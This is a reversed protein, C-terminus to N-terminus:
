SLRIKWSFSKEKEGLRARQGGSLQLGRDGVLTDDGNLFNLLDQSLGCANIVDNYVDDDFECGMLINEKVTGDVIFPEQEAYSLKVFRRSIEGKTPSLEGALCQLLASKGSAVKGIICYLKGTSFELSIDSLAIPSADNENEDLKSNSAGSSQISNWRCTVGSMKLIKEESSDIHNVGTNVNVPDPVSEMHSQENLSFFRQIRGSAIFSESLSMVSNPVHKTLIFQVINLLTMTSFAKKPTLEGGMADYISFIFVSISISASFFIAENLAKYRGAKQITAIERARIKQIRDRFNYEWGNYKMIRVGSIAQSVFNVREDTIAAVQSRYLAFKRGLAIQLPILCALLVYGIAFVPGIILIGIVLIVICFFPGLFLFPSTVSAYVFKEVDTSALNMIYGNSIGDAGHLAGVPLRLAKAFISAIIGIRLQMGLRYTEFFQMQKSPFAILGFLALLSAYLYGKKSDVSGAEESDNSEFRGFQEMLLGLVWAQAIRASMNIFMLLFAFKSNILFHKLLGRALNNRKSDNEQKWIGEIIKRNEASSDVEQLDYLDRDELPRENGLKLLPMAWWFCMKSLCNANAIPNEKRKDCDNENGAKTM